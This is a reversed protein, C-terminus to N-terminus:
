IQIDDLDLIEEREPSPEGAEADRERDGDREDPAPGDQNKGEGDPMDQYESYKAYLKLNHEKGDGQTQGTHFTEKHPLCKTCVGYDACTDCEFVRGFIPNLCIDCTYNNHLAYIRVPGEAVLRSQKESEDQDGVGYRLMNIIDEGADCRRALDLPTLKETDTGIGLTCKVDLKAGNLLLVKVIGAYDPQESRMKYACGREHPRVAWCLPTWGDSDPRNIYRALRKEDSLLSIIFEIARLNGFQAAWHLCNKQEKDPAMLDGRYSLVIAQFNDFGNVAAFHLPLRGSFTDALRVEAGEEVLFKLTAPSASVCAAAFATHFRGGIVTQKINAKSRPNFVLMRTIIDITLIDENRTTWGYTGLVSILPTCHSCNPVALNVNAGHDLLVQVGEVNLNRSALCLPSGWLPSPNDLNIDEQSLLLKLHDLTNAERSASHLPTEGDADPANLDAGARILVRLSEVDFRGRITGHLATLGHTNRANIDIGKRFELVTKLIELDGNSARHLITEDYAMGDMKAGKEALLRTLVVNRSFGVADFIPAWGYEDKHDIDAGKEILIEAVKVNGSSSALNILRNGFSNSINVDAGYDLLLRVIDPYSIADFLLSSEGYSHAVDVRAGKKLLATVTEVHGNSVAYYLASKNFSDLVDIDAGKTLLWQVLGLKNSQSAIMLATKGDRNTENLNIPRDGDLLSNCIPIISATDYSSNAIEALLPPDFYHNPDANYKLMVQVCGININDVTSFWLATDMGYPGVANADAGGALLAEVTKPYGNRSAIALPTWTRYDDPPTGQPENVDAGAEVLASVSQWCGWESAAWLATHPQRAKKYSPDHDLYKQVVDIHGRYAATQFSGYITLTPVKSTAGRALLTGTITSYGLLSSMHLISPYYGLALEVNPEIDVGVGNDLLIKTLEVMNLWVATWIAFHPWTQTHRHWEPHSLVGQALDLATTGDDAQLASLLFEMYTSVALAKPPFLSLVEGGKGGIIASSICQVRLNEPEANFRERSLFGLSACIPLASEPPELTRSLPSSMAWYVKAWLISVHKTQKDFFFSLATSQYSSSCKSLHYPLAKVAYLLLGQNAPLVPMAMKFRQQQEQLASEYRLVTDELSAVAKDSKLYTFCFEALKQHAENAVENWIYSNIDTNDVFLSMIDPRVTAQDYKFDTLLRLQSRLQQQVQMSPQTLIPQFSEPRTTNLQKYYEVVLSLEELNLPRYSCLLWSLLWRFLDVNEDLKIIKDLVGEITDSSSIHPLLRTFESLSHDSPNDPWSTHDFLLALITHLNTPGMASLKDLHSQMEQRRPGSPCLQISDDVLRRSESNTETVYADVDLRPWKELEVALANPERSTVILKISIETKKQLASYYNLFAKRSDRDCEDFDHLTIIVGSPFFSTRAAEFMSISSKDTWGGRIIFLDRLLHFKDNVTGTFIGSMAQALVSIIMDSISRRQPDRSDFSFSLYDTFTYDYQQRLKAIGKLMIQDAVNHALSDSHGQVHLIQPGQFEEWDVHEQADVGPLLAAVDRPDLQSIRPPAALALLAQEIPLWDPHSALNELGYSVIKDLGPFRSASGNKSQEQITTESPLGMTATFADMSPHIMGAEVEGAYLHIIHTRLAIKSSIFAENIQITTQALNEIIQPALLRQSNIDVKSSLFTWLTSIMDRTDKSRQLCGSFIVKSTNWFINSYKNQFRAAISLAQKIVLAGLDYAVFIIAKRTDPTNSQRTALLDRLLCMAEQQISEQTLDGVLFTSLGSQFVFERRETNNALDLLESLSHRDEVLSLAAVHVVDVPPVNSSQSESPPETDKLILRELLTSESNSSALAVEEPDDTEM